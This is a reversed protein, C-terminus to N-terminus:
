GNFLPKTKTTSSLHRWHCGQFLILPLSISLWQFLFLSLTLLWCWMEVAFGVIIEDHFYIVTPKFIVFYSWKRWFTILFMNLIHDREIKTNFRKKNKNFCIVFLSRLWILFSAWRWSCSFNTYLTHHTFDHAVRIASKNSHFQPWCHEDPLYILREDYLVGFSSFHFFEYWLLAECCSECWVWSLCELLESGKVVWLRM